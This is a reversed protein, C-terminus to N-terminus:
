RENFADRLRGFFGGPRNGTVQGIDPGDEGRVAALKRLLDEQEPDLKTPTV